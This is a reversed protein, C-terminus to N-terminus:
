LVYVHEYIHVYHYIYVDYRDIQIDINQAERTDWITCFRGATHSVRTQDKPQSSRDTTIMWDRLQTQSKEVGHVAARWAERDEAIERLKSLDQRSLQQHKRVM